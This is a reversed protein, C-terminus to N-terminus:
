FNYETSWSWAGEEEEKEDDEEEEEQENQECTVDHGICFNRVIKM